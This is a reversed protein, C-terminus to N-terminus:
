HWEADFIPVKFICVVRCVLEGLEFELAIESM